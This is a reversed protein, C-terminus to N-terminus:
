EADTGGLETVALAAELSVIDVDCGCTVCCGDEDSQVFAGCGPNGFEIQNGDEDYEDESTSCLLIEDGCFRRFLEVLAEYSPNAQTVDLM